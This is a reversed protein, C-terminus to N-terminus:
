KEEKEYRIGNILIYDEGSEDYKIVNQNEEDAPSEYSESLVEKGVRSASLMAFSGSLLVVPLISLILLVIALTKPHPLRFQKKKKETGEGSNMQELRKNADWRYFISYLFVILAVGVLYFRLSEFFQKVICEIAFM